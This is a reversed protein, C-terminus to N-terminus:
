PHLHSCVQKLAAAPPAKEATPLAAAPRHMAPKVPQGKDAKTLGALSHPGLPRRGTLKQPQHLQAAGSNEKDAEAAAPM